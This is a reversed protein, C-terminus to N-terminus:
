FAELFVSDVNWAENGFIATAEDDRSAPELDKFGVFRV